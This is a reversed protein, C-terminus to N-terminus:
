RGALITERKLRTARRSLVPWHTWDDARVVKVVEFTESARLGCMEMGLDASAQCAGNGM